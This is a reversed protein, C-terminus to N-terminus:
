QTDQIVTLVDEYKTVAWFGTSNAEPNWHVPARQRLQRFVAHYNDSTYLDPSKVDVVQAANLAVSRRRNPLAEAAQLAPSTFPCRRHESLLETEESRASSMVTPSAPFQM